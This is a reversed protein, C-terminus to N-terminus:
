MYAGTLSQTQLVSNTMMRDNFFATLLKFFQMRKSKNGKVTVWAVLQIGREKECCIGLDQGEVELTDKLGILLEENKSGSGQKLGGDIQEWTTGTTFFGGALAPSMLSTLEIGPNPLDGSPPCPLGSWYGQRSFGMSLPAQCTVTWQTM